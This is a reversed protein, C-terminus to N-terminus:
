WVVQSLNDYNLDTIPSDFKTYQHIVINTSFEIVIFILVKFDGGGQPTLFPFKLSKAPNVTSVSTYVCRLGLSIYYLKEFLSHTVSM